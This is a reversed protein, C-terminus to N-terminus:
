KIMKFKVSNLMGEKLVKVFNKCRKDSTIQIYDHLPDGASSDNGLEYKIKLANLLKITNYYNSDFLTGPLGYSKRKLYMKENKYKQIYRMSEFYYSYMMDKPKYFLDNYKKKEKNTM